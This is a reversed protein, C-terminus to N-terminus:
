RLRWFAALKLLDYYSCNQTFISNNTTIAVKTTRPPAVSSRLNKSSNLNSYHNVTFIEQILLNMQCMCLRHHSTSPPHSSWIWEFEDLHYINLLKMNHFYFIIKHLEPKGFTPNFGNSGKNKPSAVIWWCASPGSLMFIVIVSPEMKPHRFIVTVLTTYSDAM